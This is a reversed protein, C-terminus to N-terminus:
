KKGAIDMMVEKKLRELSCTEFKPRVLRTQNIKAEAKTCEISRSREGNPMTGLKQVPPLDQGINASIAKWLDIDIDFITETIDVSAVAVMMFASFQTRKLFQMAMGTEHVKRTPLDSKLM